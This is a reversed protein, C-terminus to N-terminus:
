VWIDMPTSLNNIKKFLFRVAEKGKEGIDESYENVYLHIHKRVIEEEMEQANLQIYPLSITPNKFAFQLSKKILQDVKLKIDEPLKRKVGIGGLPIPLGTQNEWFEGLDIVKKLGKSEYTFRNEHIILGLDIKKTQLLGEIESFLYEHTNLTNSFAYQLLFNATTYKGPIGIKYTSIQNLDIEQSSILLPGCNNGLASGANLLQYEPMLHALAHYSLKTIDLTQEFALQNLKEVDALIIEFELGELDIRKNVIADFIFTDNPCPSFGLTIQM